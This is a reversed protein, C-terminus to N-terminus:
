VLRKLVAVILSEYVFVSVLEWGDSGDQDLILTLESPHYVSVVKYRWM